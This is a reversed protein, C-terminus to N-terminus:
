LEDYSGARIQNYLENYIQIWLVDLLRTNVTVKIKGSIIGHPIQPYVVIDRADYYNVTDETENYNM